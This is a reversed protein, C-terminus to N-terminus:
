NQNKLTKVTAEGAMVLMTLQMEPPVDALDTDSM